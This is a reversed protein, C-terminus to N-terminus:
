WASSWTLWCPMLLHPSSSRIQPPLSAWRSYPRNKECKKKSIHVINKTRWNGNSIGSLIDVKRKNRNSVSVRVFIMEGSLLDMNRENLVSIYLSYEGWWILSLIGTRRVDSMNAAIGIGLFSKSLNMNRTLYQGNKIEGETMRIIKM